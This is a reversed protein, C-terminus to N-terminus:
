MQILEHHHHHHIIFSTPLPSLRIQHLKGSNEQLHQAFQRFNQKSLVQETRSKSHSRVSYVDQPSRILTKLRKTRDNPERKGTNVSLLKRNQSCTPRVPNLVKTLKCLGLMGYCPLHVPHCKLDIIDFYRFSFKVEIVWSSAARIINLFNFLLPQLHFSSNISHWFTEYNVTLPNRHSDRHCHNTHRLRSRLSLSHFHLLHTYVHCWAAPDKTLLCNEKRYYIHERTKHFGFNWQRTAVVGDSTWMRLWIFGTWDSGNWEYLM